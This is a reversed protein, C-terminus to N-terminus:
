DKTDREHKQFDNSKVKVTGKGFGTENRRDHKDDWCSVFSFYFSNNKNGIDVFGLVRSIKM